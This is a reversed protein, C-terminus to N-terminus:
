DQSESELKSANDARGSRCLPSGAVNVKSESISYSTAAAVISALGASVEAVVTATRKLPQFALQVVDFPHTEISNPDGWDNCTLSIGTEELPERAPTRSTSLQSSGVLALGDPRIDRISPM